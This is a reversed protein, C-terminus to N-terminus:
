QLPVCVSRVRLPCCRQGGSVDCRNSTHGGCTSRTSSAVQVGAALMEEAMVVATHPKGSGRGLIAFTETVADLPLM